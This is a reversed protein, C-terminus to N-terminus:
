KVLLRNKYLEKFEYLKNRIWIAPIRQSNSSENSKIKWFIRTMTFWSYKEPILILWSFKWKKNGIYNSLQCALSSLKGFASTLKRTSILIKDNCSKGIPQWTDIYMRPLFAPEKEEVIRSRKQCTSKISNYTEWQEISNSSQQSVYLLIM